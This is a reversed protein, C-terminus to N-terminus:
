GDLLGGEFIAAAADDISGTKRLRASQEAYRKDARSKSRKGTNPRAGPKLKPAGGKQRKRKNVIDDSVERAQRGREADRLVLMVRHDSIGSLTDADFGMELAYDLLRGKAEARVDSDRWEPVAKLLREHEAQVTEAYAQEALAESEVQARQYAGELTARQPATLNSGLAGALLELNQRYSANLSMAQERLTAVEAREEALEQTKRTFAAQRQFGALAERLPVQSEEGNIKVTVLADELGETDLIDPEDGEDEGDGPEEAEDDGEDLADLAEVMAAHDELLGEVEIDPDSDLGDDDALGSELLEEIEDAGGRTTLGVDPTNDYVEGNRVELTGAPVITKNREREPAATGSAGSKGSRGNKRKKSM